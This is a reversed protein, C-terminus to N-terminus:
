RISKMHQITFLNDDIELDFELHNYELVTKQGEKEVPIMEMKSPLLKGGFKKPSLGNM